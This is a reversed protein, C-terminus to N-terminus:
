IKLPNNAIEGSDLLFRWQATHVNYGRFTNLLTSQLAAAAFFGPGSVRQWGDKCVRVSKVNFKVNVYVYQGIINVASAVIRCVPGGQIAASPISCNFCSTEM